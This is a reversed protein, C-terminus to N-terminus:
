GIWTRACWVLLQDEGVDRSKITGRWSGVPVDEGIQHNKPEVTLAKIMAGIVEADSRCGTREYSRAISHAPFAHEVRVAVQAQARTVCVSVFCMIANPETDQWSSHILGHYGVSKRM